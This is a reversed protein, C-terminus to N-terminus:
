QEQRSVGPRLPAVHPKAIGAPQNPCEGKLEAGIDHLGGYRVVPQRHSPQPRARHDSREEIVKEIPVHSLQALVVGAFSLSRKPRILDSRVSTLNSNIRTLDRESVAPEMRNTDPEM